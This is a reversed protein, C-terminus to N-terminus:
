CRFPYPPYHHYVIRDREPLQYGKVEEVARAASGGITLRKKKKSKKVLEAAAAPEDLEM